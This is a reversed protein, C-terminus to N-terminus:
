DKPLGLVEKEEPTLKALAQKRINERRTKRAEYELRSKKRAEIEPKLEEHAIKEWEVRNYEKECGTCQIGSSGQSYGDDSGYSWFKVKGNCNPCPTKYSSHKYQAM